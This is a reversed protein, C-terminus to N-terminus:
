LRTESEFTMLLSLSLPSGIRNNPSLSSSAQWLSLYVSSATKTTQWALSGQREERKSVFFEATTVTKGLLWFCLSFTLNSCTNETSLQPAKDPRQTTISSDPENKKKLDKRRKLNTGGQSWIQLIGQNRHIIRRWGLIPLWSIIKCPFSNTYQYCDHSTRLSKCGKCSLGRADRGSDYSCCNLYCDM